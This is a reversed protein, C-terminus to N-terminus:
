QGGTYPVIPIPSIELTLIKIGFLLEILRIIAWAAFVVLLGILASTITGRAAEVATKDGGSTIWRIGGYILFVLAILAALILIIKIAVPVISPLTINILGEFAGKPTLDVTSESGAQALAATSLFLGGFVFKEVLKNFQKM